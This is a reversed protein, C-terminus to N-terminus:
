DGLSRSGTNCCNISKSGAAGAAETRDTFEYVAITIKEGELEPINGMQQQMPAPQVEASDSQFRDSGTAACGTLLTLGLICSCLRKM